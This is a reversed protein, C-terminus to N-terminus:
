LDHLGYQEVQTSLYWRWDFCYKANVHLVHMENSTEGKM